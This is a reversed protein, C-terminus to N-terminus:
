KVPSLRVHVNGFNQFLWARVKTKFKKRGFGCLCRL